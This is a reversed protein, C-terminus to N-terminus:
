FYSSSWLLCSAFLAHKVSWCNHPRQGVSPILMIRERSFISRSVQDLKSIGQLPTLGEAKAKRLANILIREDEPAFRAAISKDPPVEQPTAKMAAVVGAVIEDVTSPQNAPANPQSGSPQPANATQLAPLAWPQGGFQQVSSPASVVQPPQPAQLLFNPFAPQQPMTLGNITNPVGGGTSQPQAPQTQMAAMIANMLALQPATVQNYHNMNMDLVACVQGSRSPSAYASRSPPPRTPRSASTLANLGEDIIYPVFSGQRVAEPFWVSTILLKTRGM